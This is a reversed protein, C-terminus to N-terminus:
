QTQMYWHAANATLAMDCHIHAEGGVHYNAVISHRKQHYQLRLHVVKRKLCKEKLVILKSRLVRV